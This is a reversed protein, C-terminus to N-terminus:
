AFDELGGEIDTGLKKRETKLIQVQNLVAGVGFAETGSCYCFTKVSADVAVVGFRWGLIHEVSRVLQDATRTEDM